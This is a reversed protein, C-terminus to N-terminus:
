HLTSGGRLRSSCDLSSLSVTSEWEDRPGMCLSEVVELELGLIDGRRAEAPVASMHYVFIFM